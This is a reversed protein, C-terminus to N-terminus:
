PTAGPLRDAASMVSSCVTEYGSVPLGKIQKALTATDNTKEVASAIDHIVQTYCQGSYFEDGFAGAWYFVPIGALIAVLGLWRSRRPASVTVTLFAAALSFYAVLSTVLLMPFFSTM